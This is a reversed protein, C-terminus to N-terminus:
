KAFWVLAWLAVSTCLSRVSRSPVIAAWTWVVLGSTLGFLLLEAPIM